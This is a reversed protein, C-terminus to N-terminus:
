LYLGKTIESKENFKNFLTMCPQLVNQNSEGGGERIKRGSYEVGGGERFTEKEHEHKKKTKNQKM